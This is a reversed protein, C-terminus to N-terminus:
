RQRRDPTQPPAPNPNPGARRLLADVDGWLRRCAKREAEPLQALAAEARLGALDPDQRWHRLTRQLTARGQPPGQDAVETWAALDARLWDLAQRRLKARGFADLQAADQGQEAGARAAACAANYRHGQRPDAVLRPQDAFAEAYFRTAAAYLKKHQQCLGALALREAADPPQAHGRLVTPLKGDHALSHECQQLLQTADRRLPDKQPLL